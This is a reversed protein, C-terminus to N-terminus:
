NGADYHSLGLSEALEWLREEDDDPPGDWLHVTVHQVGSGVEIAEGSPGNWVLRDEARTADPFRDAFGDLFSPVDWTELLESPAGTRLQALLADGLPSAAPLFPDVGTSPKWFVIRHPM